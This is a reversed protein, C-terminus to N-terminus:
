KNKHKKHKALKKEIKILDNHISSFIDPEILRCANLKGRLSLVKRRHSKNNPNINMNKIERFLMIVSLRLDNPVKLQNKKNIVVGTVIKNKNKGLYKRKKNNISFGNEQLKKIIEDVVKHSITDKSSITIDDVYLSVTLNNRCAINNIEEFMDIYSLYSMIQSSPSGTPLRDNRCILLTMIESLEESMEMHKFFFDYVNSKKCNTFFKSIDLNVIYSNKSHIKANNIYSVKKRCSIVWNPFEIQSLCKHINKQIKKLEVTPVEIVRGDKNTYVVYGLCDIFKKDKLCGKTLNLHIELLDTSDLRYLLNKNIKYNPHKM